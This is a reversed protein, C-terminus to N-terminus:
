RVNAALYMGPEWLCEVRDMTTGKVWERIKAATADENWLDKVPLYAHLSKKLEPDLAEKPQDGVGYVRAGVEALGRTFYPMEAPYGPSIMLVNM